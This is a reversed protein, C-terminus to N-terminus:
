ASRALRAEVSHSIPTTHHRHQATSPAKLHAEAESQVIVASVFEDPIVDKLKRMVSSNQTPVM